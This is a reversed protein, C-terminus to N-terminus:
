QGPTTTYLAQKARAIHAQLAPSPAQVPLAAVSDLAGAFWSVWAERVQRETTEAATRDTARAILTAGQTRELALRDAAAHALLDVITDADHETASALLLAAAGVSVGIHKMTATSVMGPRDLSAHYFRDPFHWALVSPVGAALFVMHDSGGEYPNTRVVWDTGRARRQCIALFLDNLLSGKLQDGRVQPNGWETHPDSPRDWVATPDPMKEILFTGGTKATDEGTMDLSFMYKVQAADAPHDKIWQRSGTIEDVWLFTLTREPAPVRGDRIASLMARALELQTACGTADDNAGPEQIHAAFVIREAERSRGPIEAVLTRVPGPTFTSVIEVKVRAPGRALRARLRTAARPTAKFGFARRAEDYPINGWQLVDWEARPVVGDTAPTGPRIYDEIEPSIVGLAGRKVVAQQWLRRLSGNGLVVAGTVSVRDFDADTAGEGVDVVPATVGGAPTSFSNICLAVRHQERSLLVEDPADDAGLLTLTGISYDWGNAQGFSEVWSAPAPSAAAARDGFGSAVLHERIHDITANFGRNGANRWYQDMFVVLDMAAPEDFRASLHAMTRVAQPPVHDALTKAPAPTASPRVAHVCSASVSLMATAVFAVVARDRASRM